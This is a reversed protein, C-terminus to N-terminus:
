MYRGPLRYLCIFRGRQAGAIAKAEQRFHRGDRRRDDGLGPAPSAALSQLGPQQGRAIYLGEIIALSARGTGKGSAGRGGVDNISAHNLSRHAPV